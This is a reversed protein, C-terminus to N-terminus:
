VKVIEDIKELILAKQGNTIKKGKWFINDNNLEDYIDESPKTINDSFGMLYNVNVNYIKCLNYFVYLSPYRHNKNTEPAEYGQITSRIAKIGLDQVKGLETEVQSLSLGSYNRAEKLRDSIPLGFKKRKMDKPFGSEYFKDTDLVKFPREDKKMASQAMPQKDGKINNNGENM